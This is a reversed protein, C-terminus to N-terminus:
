QYMIKGVSLLPEERSEIESAAQKMLSWWGLGAHQSSSPLETSTGRHSQMWDELCSALEEMADSRLKASTSRHFHLRIGKEQSASLLFGQDGTGLVPFVEADEPLALRKLEGDVARLRCHIAAYLTEEMGSIALYLRDIQGLVPSASFRSDELTPFWMAYEGTPVRDEGNRIPIVNRLEVILSTEPVTQKTIKKIWGFM